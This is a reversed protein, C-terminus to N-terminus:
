FYHFRFNLEGIFNQLDEIVDKRKMDELLSLLESVTKEGRNERNEYDKLLFTVARENFCAIYNIEENTYGMKCALTKWDKGPAPPTLLITMRRRADDSLDRILKEDM